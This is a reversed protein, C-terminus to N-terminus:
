AKRITLKDTACECESICNPDQALRDALFQPLHDQFILQEVGFLTKPFDEMKEIEERILLCKFKGEREFIRAIENKNWFVYYKLM